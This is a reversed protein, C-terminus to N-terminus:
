WFDYPDAYYLVCHFFLIVVSGLALNKAKVRFAQTHESTMHRGQSEQVRKKCASMSVAVMPPLMQTKTHSEAVSLSFGM